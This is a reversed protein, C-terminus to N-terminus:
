VRRDRFRMNNVLYKARLSTGSKCGLTFKPSPNRLIVLTVSRIYTHHSRSASAESHMSEVIQM